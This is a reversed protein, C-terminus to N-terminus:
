CLGNVNFWESSSKNEEIHYESKLFLAPPLPPAVGMTHYYKFSYDM